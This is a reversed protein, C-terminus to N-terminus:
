RRHRYTIRGRTVDYPSVEVTVRDGPLVRIRYKRMRGAIRALVTHNESIQVRFNSNGLSETITGELEIPEEKQIEPRRERLRLVLREGDEGRGPTKL